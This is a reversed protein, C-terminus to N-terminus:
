NASDISLHVNAMHNAILDRIELSLTEISALFKNAVGVLADRPWSHFWDISTCNILGPFQRARFRFADGVPSFCLGM